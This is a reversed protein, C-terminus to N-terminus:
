SMELIHVVFSYSSNNLEKILYMVFSVCFFYIKSKRSVRDGHFIFMKRNVPKLM